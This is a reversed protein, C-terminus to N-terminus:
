SLKPMWANKNAAIGADGKQSICANMVTIPLIFYIKDILPRNLKRFGYQGIQTVRDGTKQATCICRSRRSDPLFCGSRM